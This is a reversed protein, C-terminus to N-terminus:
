LEGWNRGVKVDVTLPVNLQYVQEMIEKTKETVAQAKEEKVELIIEDYIQLIMKIDKDNRFNEYVKIMALKM